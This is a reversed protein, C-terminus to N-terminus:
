KKLKQQKFQRRLEKLSPQAQNKNHPLYQKWNIGQSAAYRLEEPSLPVVRPSHPRWQASRAYPYADQVSYWSELLKDHYDAVENPTTWRLMFRWREFLYSPVTDCTELVRYAYSLARKALAPHAVMQKQSLSWMRIPLRPLHANTENNIPAPPFPIALNLDSKVKCPSKSLDSIFVGNLITNFSGNRCIRVLYTGSHSLAFNKWCGSGAFDYVRTRALVPLSYLEPTLLESIQQHKKESKLKRVEVLYDRYGNRAKRGNPSYFYLSLMWKGPPVNVSVWIDPGDISQAYEEGHDDWEAETRIGAEPNWLVNPNTAAHHSDM